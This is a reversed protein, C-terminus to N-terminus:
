CRSLSLFFLVSAMMWADTDGDHEVCVCLDDSLTFPLASLFLTMWMSM